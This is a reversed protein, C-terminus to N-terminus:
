GMPQDGNAKDYKFLTVELQNEKLNPILEAEMTEFDYAKFGRELKYEDDSSEINLPPSTRFTNIGLSPVSKYKIYVPGQVQCNRINYLDISIRMSHFEADVEM